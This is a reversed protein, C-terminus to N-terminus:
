MVNEFNDVNFTFQNEAVNKAMLILKTIINVQKVTTIDIDTTFMFTRKKQRRLFSITYLKLKIFLIQGIYYQFKGKEEFKVSCFDDAAMLDGDESDTSAYEENKTKNEHVKKTNKLINRPKPKKKVIKSEYNEKIRKMEPTGSAICSKGRKRKTVKQEKAKPLGIVNSARKFTNNQEGHALM